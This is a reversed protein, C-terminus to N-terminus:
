RDIPSIRDFRAKDGPLFTIEIQGSGEECISQKAEGYAHDLLEKIAAIRATESEAKAALRALEKIADTSAPKMREDM